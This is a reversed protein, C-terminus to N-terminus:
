LVERCQKFIKRTGNHLHVNISPNLETDIIVRFESAVSAFSLITALYKENLFGFPVLKLTATHDYDQHGGNQTHGLKREQM